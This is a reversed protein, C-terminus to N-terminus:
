LTFTNWDEYVSLGGNPQPFDLSTLEIRYNEFIGGEYVVIERFKWLGKQIDAYRANLREVLPGNWGQQYYQHVTKLVFGLNGLLDVQEPLMFGEDTKDRKIKLGTTESRVM